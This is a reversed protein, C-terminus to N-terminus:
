RTPGDVYRDFVNATVRAIERDDTLGFVWDTTGITVVEGRPRDTSGTARATEDSEDSVSRASPSSVRDPRPPALDDDFPRCVLMVANGYRMRALNEDSTDGFLREAMFELDGQDSLAAISVPYDGVGLNSAPAFAVIEVDSPYTGPADRHEMWQPAPVPMQFEDFTLRCGVVEYGVIGHRAGLLDGYLLDTGALLWHDHRYVTFGGAARPTAKGFRHYLGWASSAGLFSWEPRAVAPDAWLGTSATPDDTGVPDSDLATYKHCVMRARDDDAHGASGESPRASPELRVQWFMTNGSFSVFNGGSRVHHEVTDRAAATWYEDHGASVVLDYGDVTATDDLDSSIAFDLQLGAREAWEVFRREHTFWGTSGIASPYAHETRFAQFILGDIDPEEGWRTPRAKRDAREVEARSLMGRAFPRRFSVATGGTYLSRGGWTNYANWTNTALVFLARHKEHLNSRVVFCAHATAHAAPTDRADLTVLYFGSRWEQGVPIDISSPWDCGNADADPPPEIHTGALDTATWVVDRRAGWREVTVDYRAAKTSVHLALSDGPLCSLRDCYGEIDDWFTQDDSV